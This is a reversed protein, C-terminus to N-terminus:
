WTLMHTPYGVCIALYVLLWTPYGKVYIPYGVAETILRTIPYGMLACLVALLPIDWVASSIAFRTPYGVLQCDIMSPHSIGCVTATLWSTPYGQCAICYAFTIDWMSQNTALHSIGYLYVSFIPCLHSIGQSGCLLSQSIGCCRRMISGHIPSHSIGCRFTSFLHSIGCSCLSLLCHSIGSIQWYM